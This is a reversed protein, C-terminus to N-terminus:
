GAKQEYLVPSGDLLIGVIARPAVAVGLNVVAVQTTADASNPAPATGAAGAPDAAVTVYGHPDTEVHSNSTM